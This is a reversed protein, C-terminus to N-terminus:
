GHTETPPAADPTAPLDERRRLASLHLVLSFAAAAAVVGWFFPADAYTWFLPWYPLPPVHFARLIGPLTMAALPGACPIGDRSAALHVAVAVAVLVFSALTVYGRWPRGRLLDPLGPILPRMVRWRGPGAVPTPMSTEASAPTLVLLFGLWITLLANAVLVSSAPKWADPPWSDWLWLASAWRGVPLAAYAAYLDASRLWEAPVLSGAQLADLNKRARPDDTLSEYLERARDTHGALHNAVAAAFRTADTPNAALRGELERVVHASGLSDAVGIPIESVAAVSRVLLALAAYTTLAVACAALLLCREKRTVPSIGGLLRCAARIPGGNEHHRRDAAISLTALTLWFALVGTVHFQLAYDVHALRQIYNLPDATAAKVIAEETEASAADGRERYYHEWAAAAFDEGELVPGLARARTLWLHARDLGAEDRRQAAHLNAPSSFPVSILREILTLSVTGNPEPLQRRREQCEEYARDAWAPQGFREFYAAMWAYEYYAIASYDGAFMEPWTKEAEEKRGQGWLAQGLLFLHWPQTPDRERARQLAVELDSFSRPAGETGERGPHPKFDDDDSQPLFNAALWIGNRERSRRLLLSPGSVLRNLRGRSLTIADSADGPFGECAIQLGDRKVALSKVGGPLQFRELVVGTVPDLGLLYGTGLRQADIRRYSPSTRERAYVKAEFFIAQRTSYTRGTGAARRYATVAQAFRDAEFHHDGLMGWAQADEPDLAIAEELARQAAEPKRLQELAEAEYRLVEATPPAQDFLALAKEPKGETYLAHAGALILVLDSIGAAGTKRLAIQNPAQNGVVVSGGARHEMAELPERGLLSWSQEPGQQAPLRQVMTLYPQIETEGHLVFSDGWVVVTAGLREGLALAAAQDRVPQKTEEVGLVKVDGTRLRQAVAKEVLAAMVRGEKSSDEDPGYFPTVAVVLRSESPLTSGPPAGPRQAFWAGALVVLGAALAAARTRRLRPRAIPASTLTAVHSTAEAQAIAALRQRLEAYSRPRAEPSKATMWEIIAVASQPVEPHSARLSPLLQHIHQAVVEVPTTGEFPRHGALMEYLVIGLSYIDARFDVERGLVQEPSVYHPTGVIAGTATLSADSEVEIPKALGFDAVRTSGGRDLLINSPKIDRHILHKEWAADLAEAVERVIRLADDVPIRGQRKIRDALVEGEVYEMVIYATGQAEGFSYVRVVHPHEVTAMARAERLFRRRAGDDAAIRDSILKVATRRGLAEDEALWVEGMGGKGLPHLFRLGNIAPVSPM